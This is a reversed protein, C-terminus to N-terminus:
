QQMRDTGARESAAREVANRQMTTRDSGAREAASHQMTTRESGAREVASQQMTTRESGVREVPTREATLEVTKREATLEAGKRDATVQAATRVAGATAAAGQVTPAVEAKAGSNLKVDESGNQAARFRQAPVITGSVDQSRPFDFGYQAVVVVAAAVGIGVWMKRNGFISSNKETMFLRRTNSDFSRTTGFVRSRSSLQRADRSAVPPTPLTASVAAVLGEPAYEMPVGELAQFLREIDEFEARAQPDSELRFKLRQKEDESAEGDLVAYMLEQLEQHKM